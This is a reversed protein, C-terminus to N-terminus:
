FLYAYAESTSATLLIRSAPVQFGRAAYYVAVAERAAVSGAPSPEYELLHPDDFARLMEAPYRLGARTPNSETLDLISRGERRKAELLETIRNPRLDWRLRSSFM